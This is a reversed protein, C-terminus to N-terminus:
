HMSNDDPVNSADNVVPVDALPGDNFAVPMEIASEEPTNTGSSPPAPIDSPSPPTSPVAVEQAVAAEEQPESQAPATNPIMHNVTAVTLM